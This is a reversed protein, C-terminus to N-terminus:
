TIAPSPQRISPMLWSAIERAPWRFSFLSITRNSSLPMEISPLVSMVTDSSIVPRNSAQWHCTSAQSPCSIAATSAARVVAFVMVSLGTKIRQLVVMPLPDALTPPVAFACPAGSPSSSIAATRSPSPQSAGAKTIGSSIRASQRDAPVLPWATRASQCARRLVACVFSWNSASTLPSTCAAVWAAIAANLSWSRSVGCFTAVRTALWFVISAKNSWTGDKNPPDASKVPEFLVLTPPCLM